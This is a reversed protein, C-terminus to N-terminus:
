TMSWQRDIRSKVGRGEGSTPHLTSSFIGVRYDYTLQGALWDMRLSAIWSCWGSTLEIAYLFVVSALSWPKLLMGAFWPSVLNNKIDCLFTVM